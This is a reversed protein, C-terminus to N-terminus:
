TLWTRETREIPKEYRRCPVLVVADGAEAEYEIAGVDNWGVREYFGRAEINGIAVALWAVDHGAAAIRQEGARLLALGLGTGRAGADVYLQEIEDDVVVVFGAVAGGHLGVLTSPIRDLVRAPYSDPTRFRSLAEPVRGLHADRWGSNWIRAIAAVDGAEARRIRPDAANM